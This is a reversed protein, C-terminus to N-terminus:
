TQSRCCGRCGPRRPPRRRRTTRRPRAGRPGRLTAWVPGGCWRFSVSAAVGVPRSAGHSARAGANSGRDAPNRRRLRGGSQVAQRFRPDMAQLLYFLKREGLLVVKVDLPVPEPELLAASQLSLSQAVSEIRVHKGLLSRKLAEWAQPNTLLARVPLMLFGGNARHLAGPKIMHLDTVLSGLQSRHEVRGVLNPLTPHDEYVVPAAREEKRDILANVRFRRLPELERGLGPPANAPEGSSPMFPKVDEVIAAELADFHALVADSSGYKTRLEALRHGIVASFTERLLEKVQAKTERELRHTRQMAQQLEKGLPEVIAELAAAFRATLEERDREQHGSPLLEEVVLRYQFDGTRVCFVAIVACQSRSTMVAPGGVFETPRGFFSVTPGGLAPKQDMAFGLTDGARLVELMRKLLSRRHTWLVDCGAEHRLSELFLSVAPNRAPKALEYFRGELVQSMFVGILEWSGLHATILLQGSGAREAREFAGRLLGLGEVVIEEPRAIGRVAELTCLVQNRYLRKAFGRAEASGPSVGRIRDLNQFLIARERRAGVRYLDALLAATPRLVARPLSRVTLAAGRLLRGLAADRLGLQSM